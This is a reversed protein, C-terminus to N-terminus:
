EACGRLVTGENRDNTEGDGAVTQQQWDVGVGPNLLGGVVCCWGVWAALVVQVCVCFCVGTCSSCSARGAKGLSVRM